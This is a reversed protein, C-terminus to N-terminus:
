LISERDVTYLRALQDPKVVGHQQMEQHLMDPKDSQELAALADMAALRTPTLGEDASLQRASQLAALSQARLANSSKHSSKSALILGRHLQAVAGAFPSDERRLRGIRKMCENFWVPSKTEVFHHMATLSALSNCVVRALQMGTFTSKQLRREMARVFHWARGNEGRYLQLQIEAMYSMLHFCEFRNSDLDFRCDQVRFRNLEDLRDQSLWANAGYGGVTTIQLYYDNRHLAERIMGSSDEVLKSWHGLHWDAWLGMWLTHALEFNQSSGQYGDIALRLPKDVQNWRCALAHICVDAAHADAHSKLSDSEFIQNQLHKLMAESSRRRRGPQYCGFVTEGIAVHFRQQQNGYRKALRSATVNLEASYLNDFLTLPRAIENCISLRKQNRGAETDPAHQDIVRDDIGFHGAFAQYDTAFLTRRRAWLLRAISTALSIRSLLSSKPKPVGVRSALERLQERVIEFKGGRIALTVALQQYQDRQDGSSLEALQGYCDAAGTPHDAEQYRAAAHRLLEVQEDGGTCAAAREYWRAAETPAFIKEANEAATIAFHVAQHSRNAAFLHGAIRASLGSDDQQILLNAWNRHAQQKEKDSLGSTLGEAVHDRFVSICEGGTAEDVILKAKALESIAADVEDGLGTLNALQSTSAHEGTAVYILTRKAEASMRDVRDQWFREVDIRLESPPSLQAQNPSDNALVQFRTQSQKDDLLGGPRFEEAIEQLRQPSGGAAVALSDILQKGVDASCHEAADTLLAVSDSQNVPALHILEDAPVRQERDESTSVTIIGMGVGTESDVLRDLLTLTDTESWQADDIAIFLPGMERLQESIKVGADLAEDRTPQDIPLQGLDGKSSIAAAMVPFARAIIQASMPDLDLKDRDGRRYRYAILDCIQAFAQFPADERARCKSRFVQGWRKSEIYGIAEDLLRTKGVGHTGSIHLRSVKGALVGDVWKQIKQLEQKRGFFECNSQRPFAAKTSLGLRSLRVAMPRDAPQRDLMELSAEILLKPVGSSLNGLSEIIKTADVDSKDKRRMALAFQRTVDDDAALLHLAEGVVLGLAFVDGAPLYQQNWIVEPAVYRPTGLLYNESNSSFGDVEYHDVLGFDIIVGNGTTDVMLNRPKIDRHVLGNAHMVALGTSYDRLLSLLREFSREKPSKLMQKLEAEFTVGHVEHMALATRGDLQYIRDVGLLNPHEISMMRRFGYRNRLLVDPSVQRLIKLACSQNTKTDLVRYVFGSGGCGLLKQLIFHGLKNGEKWPPPEHRTDGLTDKGFQWRKPTEGPEGFAESLNKM